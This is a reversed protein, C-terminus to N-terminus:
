VGCFYPFAADIAHGEDTEHDIEYQREQLEGRADEPSATRHDGIGHMREGIQGGIDDHDDKGPNRGLGPVVPM